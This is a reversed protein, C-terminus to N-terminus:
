VELNFKNSKLLNLDRSIIQLNDHTHLGCVLDNKLPIVHDVHYIIGSSESLIRAKQYFEKIRNEDAWKPTCTLKLARRKNAYFVTLEKNEKRWNAFYNRMKEKAKLRYQERTKLVKDKNEERYEFTRKNDCIKCWKQKGDKSDKRNYFASFDKIKNCKSCTKM